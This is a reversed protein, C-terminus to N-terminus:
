PNPTKLFLYLPLILLIIHKKYFFFPAPIKKEPSAAGLHLREPRPAGCDASLRRRARRQSGLTSGKWDAWRGRPAWLLSTRHTCQEWWLGNNYTRSRKKGGLIDDYPIDRWIARWVDIVVRLLLFLAVWWFLFATVVGNMSLHTQFFPQIVMMIRIQMISYLLTRTDLNHTVTHYLM